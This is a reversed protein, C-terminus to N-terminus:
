SSPSFSELVKMSISDVASDDSSFIERTKRNWEFHEIKESHSAVRAGNLTINKGECFIFQGIVGDEVNFYLFRVDSTWEDWTWTETQADAFIMYHKAERDEYCYVSLSPAGKGSDEVRSLSGITEPTAFPLLMTAHDAPLRLRSSSRMTLASDKRGYAPSVSDSEITHTWGAGEVPLLAFGNEGTLSAHTARAIFGHGAKEIVVDSAFHWNIELQHEERGEVVDRILWFENHLYFICRRHVVPDSLRMYGAHNGEFLTFTKGAIWRECHVDPISKWAFPGDPVAQDLGDVCLTNHAATGRFRDREDCMYCYTGPDILWRRGEMAVSVSLADAHGHGSRGTGQPGSDINMQLPEKKNSAMVYIGGANFSTAGITRPGKAPNNAPLDFYSLGSRGFLWLAEETLSTASKLDERRFLIAGVTLPDTMYESRNRRPNFVRGGDDDGFGEPVGARSVASVVDLMRNLILDFDVPIDMGNREAVIRAHLSFDLAYVHYYLSQEFYVGDARVQRQTEELLIRWGNRRWRGAGAIEPCMFGIFFLGVAEGLLHTNPSFYTSLNREIHRGHIALGRIMNKRFDLGVVEAPLLALIWVWSLSRFAAELSSAWNVGIPYPNARQWSTWQSRLETLYRKDGTLCLAKALTVLHQHRNLEWIVKHDGVRDFDLFDIKYWPKMPARKGHVADLHWDIDAGYDLDEYGLLDFRHHCIKDAGRIVNEVDAGAREKFLSVREALEAHSFFFEGSSPVLDKVGNRWPGVGVRYLGLEVRKHIEQVVRTRREDWSMQAIRSWTKAFRKM